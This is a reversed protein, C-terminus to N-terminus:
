EGFQFKRPSAMSTGSITKYCQCNSISKCAQTSSSSSCKWASTIDSGPAFVDVCNGFNSFSSRADTKTTSGVTLAVPIKAPSTGCANANSNGAAVVVSVNAAVANEVAKTLLASSGAMGLSMNIVCPSKNNQCQKVVFDIGAIIGSLTGQGNGGLVKVSCLTCNASVGSKHGCVTAAVHSSCILSSLGICLINDIHSKRPFFFPRANCLGFLM